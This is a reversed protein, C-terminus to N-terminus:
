DACWDDENTWQTAQWEACAGDEAGFGSVTGSGVSTLGTLFGDIAEQSLGENHAIHISVGDANAGSINTLPLGDLSDIGCNGLLSLSGVATLTPFDPAYTCTGQFSLNGGIHDLYAAEFLYLGRAGIISVSGDIAPLRPTSIKRLSDLGPEERSGIALGGLASLESFEISQLYPTERVTITGGVTDLGALSVGALNDLGQLTFDGGVQELASMFSLQALGWIDRVWLNGGIRELLPLELDTSSHPPPPSSTDPSYGPIFFIEVDGTVECLCSIGDLEWIPDEEDGDLDITLNGDIANWQYCFEDVELQNTLLLEPETRWELEACDSLPSPGTDSPPDDQVTDTGDTSETGSDELETTCGLFSASFGFLFTGLRMRIIRDAGECVQM